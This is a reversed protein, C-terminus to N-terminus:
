NSVIKFIGRPEEISHTSVRWLPPVGHVDDIRDGFEVAPYVVGQGVNGLVTLGDEGDALQDGDADEVGDLVAQGTSSVPDAAAAEVIPEFVVIAVQEGVARVCGGRGSTAQFGLGAPGAVEQGLGDDQAHGVAVANFQAMRNAGSPVQVLHASFALGIM